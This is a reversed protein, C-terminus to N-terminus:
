YLFDSSVVFSMFLCTIYFLFSVAHGQLIKVRLVISKMFLVRSKVYTNLRYRNPIMPFMLSLRRVSWVVKKQYDKMAELGCSINELQINM